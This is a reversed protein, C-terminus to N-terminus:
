KLKETLWSWSKGRKIDFICHKSVGYMDGIDQLSYSTTQLLKWIKIVDEEKLKSGKVKEGKPQNPKLGNKIAHIQNESQTCWELNEISNNEKNGDIHNVQLNLSNEIPSYTELVLRHVMLFKRGQNTMLGVRFYGKEIKQPSVIHWGRYPSWVEGNKTIRYDQNFTYGPYIITKADELM